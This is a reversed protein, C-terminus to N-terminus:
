AVLFGLDIPQLDDPYGVAVGGMGFMEARHQLLDSDISPLVMQGNSPTLGGERASCAGLVAVILITSFAVRRSFM